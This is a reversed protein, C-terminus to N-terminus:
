QESFRQLTMLMSVMGRVRTDYESGAGTGAGYVTSFSQSTNIDGYQDSQLFKAAIDRYAATNISGEGPYLINVFLNAVATADQQATTSLKAQLIAVPNAINRNISGPSSIGDAKAVDNSALLFTQIFRAREALTGANIWASGYEAWGDPADRDYINMSGLRAIPSGSGTNAISYGDTDATPIGTLVNTSLLARIASVSFELPTKVKQAYANTRFLASNAIVNIVDWIQGKPTGAEWAAMCAKVLKGEESLNPDTYDYGIFFDDHVLTQCLKVCTYEQVFPLDAQHAIMRLADGYGNTTGRAGSTSPAIYLAYAGNNGTNTGYNKTTYPPGFRAPVHKFPNSADIGIPLGNTSPFNTWNYYVYKAGFGHYDARYKQVWVGTINSITGVAPLAFTNSWNVLDNFEVTWGTWNTSDQIIDIQDYGNDVGMSFLERFERAYNENALNAGDGRSSYSDMYITMAPSKASITLLNSFTGTRSSLVERWQRAEQWEFNAAVRDGVNAIGNYFGGIYDRSKSWQTTFHNDFFQYLIELTQHKSKVGRLIHWARLENLGGTGPGTTENTRIYETFNTAFRSELAIIAPDNTATEPFSGWNNPFQQNIWADVGIGGSNAHNTIWGAGMIREVEDPTPGYALRNLATAMQVANSSLPTIQTKYFRAAKTDDIVSLTHTPVYGSGGVQSTPANTYPGGVNTSTLITM